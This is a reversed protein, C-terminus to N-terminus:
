LDEVTKTIIRNPVTELLIVKRAVITILILIKKAMIRKIRKQIVKIKTRTQKSIIITV